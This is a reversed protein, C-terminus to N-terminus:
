KFIKSISFLLVGRIYNVNSQTTSNRSFLYYLLVQSNKFYDYSASKLLTLVTVIEKLKQLCIKRALVRVYSFYNSM